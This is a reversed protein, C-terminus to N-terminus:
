RTEVPLKTRRVHGVKESMGHDSTFVYATRGDPHLAQMREYVTRVLRDM